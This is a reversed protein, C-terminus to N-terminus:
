GNSETVQTTHSSSKNTFLSAFFDNCMEAKEMDKMILDGTERLLPGVDERVKKKDSINRYFKHKNGKIGRSLNLETQTKAKRIQDM